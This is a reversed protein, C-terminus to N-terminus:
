FAEVDFRRGLFVKISTVPRYHMDITYDHPVLLRKNSFMFINFTCHLILGWKMITMSQMPIHEDFGFTRRNYWFFLYKYCTYGLIFHIIGLIYMFPMTACYTM